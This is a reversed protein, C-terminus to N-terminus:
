EDPRLLKRLGIQHYRSSVLKAGSRLTLSFMGKGYRELSLIARSNV